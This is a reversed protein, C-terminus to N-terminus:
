GRTERPETPKRWKKSESSTNSRSKYSSNCNISCERSRQAPLLLTTDYCIQRQTLGDRPQISYELKGLQTYNKQEAKKPVVEMDAGAGPPPPLPRDRDYSQNPTMGASMGGPPGSMTSGGSRNPSMGQGEYGRPALNAQQYPQSGSGEGGRGPAPGGRSPSAAGGGMQLKQLEDELFKISAQASRVENQAQQIVAENKSSAEVARVVAKAGEM